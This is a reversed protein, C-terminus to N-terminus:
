ATVLQREEKVVPTLGNRHMEHYFFAFILPFTLLTLVPATM